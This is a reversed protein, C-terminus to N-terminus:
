FNIVEKTIWDVKGMLQNISIKEKHFFEKQEEMVKIPGKIEEWRRSLFYLEDEDKIFGQKWMPTLYNKELTDPSDITASSRLLNYLKGKEIIQERELIRIIEQEVPSLAIPFIPIEIWYKLKSEDEIHYRICREAFEHNTAQVYYLRAIEGTITSALQLSYNIVNTGGTLNCWIEKGQGGVSSLSLIVQVVRDFVQNFDRRDIEIWYIDIENRNSNFKKLEHQLLKQLVTKVSEKTEVQNNYGDYKGYSNLIYNFSNTNKEKGEYLEKTSFFVIAQIDGMKMDAHNVIQQIIKEPIGEKSLNDKLEDEKYVNSSILKEIKQIIDKPQNENKLKKIINENIKFRASEGSGSFFLKDEENWRSYRNALYSIPGTIAGPARGLGMLHYIGM